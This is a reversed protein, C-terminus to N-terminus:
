KENKNKKEQNIQKFNKISKKGLFVGIGLAFLSIAGKTIAKTLQNM